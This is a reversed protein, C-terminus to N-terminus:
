INFTEYIFQAVNKNYIKSFEVTKFIELRDHHFVDFFLYHLLKNKFDDEKIINNVPKIFWQGICKNESELKDAILKNLVQIFDLWNIKTNEIEVNILESEEYNIPIYKLDWRRKFASDMFFLSQDATNMTAILLLNKPIKLEFYNPINQDKLYKSLEKSAMIPYKSAGENNRDLLQFIDGFISSSNGRNIEEIILFVQEDPNHYATIYAKMFDGAIFSYAIIPEKDNSILNNLEDYLTNKSNKDITYMVPKYQGIFDFYSYEEHFMCRFSKSFKKNEIMYSKGTGTPGYFITNSMILIDKKNEYENNLLISNNLIIEPIVIKKSTHQIFLGTKNMLLGEFEDLVDNFLQRSRERTVNMLIAIETLNKGFIEILFLLNKNQNKYYLVDIAEQFIDKIIEINEDYLFPIKLKSSIIDKIMKQHISLSLNLHDFLSIVNLKYSDTIVGSLIKNQERKIVDILRRHKFYEIKFSNYFNDFNTMDDYENEIDSIDNDVDIKKDNDESNVDDNEKRLVELKELNKENMAFYHLNEYDIIDNIMFYEFNIAKLKEIKDDVLKGPVGKTTNLWRRKLDRVWEKFKEDKSYRTPIKYKLFKVLHDFYMAWHDVSERKIDFSLLLNEVKERKNIDPQNVSFQSNIWTRLDVGNVVVGPTPLQKYQQLYQELENYSFIWGIRNRSTLNVNYQNSLNIIREIKSRDQTKKNKQSQVWNYLSSEIGLNSRSPMRQESIIFNKFIEFKDDWSLRENWNVDM